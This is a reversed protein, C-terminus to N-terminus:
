TSESWISLYREGTDCIITVITADAEVGSGADGRAVACAAHVNAGASIGALIGESRALNASMAFAEEDRVQVVEDIVSRDLTDPVFGAGIGQIRHPGPAGGSLVPSGQPEVAVIRVDPNQEKLYRGAGSITGGTGVSAVFVDCRGGTDQWIEPGTSRYHVEPNARNQFQQPIFADGLNAAIERARNVAGAMGLEPPTLSLEAGFRLLLKRREATMSEPMALILRYGRQACVLALGIGTNGSTPEVIVTGPGIQGRSEAEEIMALAIRDKVSSAPNQAEMKGLITKGPPSIKQLRVLPTKGILLTIDDYIRNM